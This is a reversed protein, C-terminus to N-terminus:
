ITLGVLQCRQTIHFDTLDPAHAKILSFLESRDIGFMERTPTPIVPSVQSRENIVSATLSEVLYSPWNDFMLSFLITLQNRDALNINIDNRTITIDHWQRPEGTAVQTIPIFSNLASISAGVVAIGDPVQANWPLESMPATQKNRLTPTTTNYTAAGVIMVKRDATGLAVVGEERAGLAGNLDIIPSLADGIDSDLIQYLSSTLRTDTDGGLAYIFQDAIYYYDKGKIHIHLKTNVIEIKEVEELRKLDNDECLKIIEANRSGPLVAGSFETGGPRAFWNMRPSRQSALDAVWAATASGGYIARDINATYEDPDSLFDIGEIVQTYGLGSPSTGSVPPPKRQAGIGTAIVIRDVILAHHHDFWAVYKGPQSRSKSIRQVKRSPNYGYRKGAVIRSVGQQFVGSSLFNDLSMEGNPAQFTPVPTGPLQLLHAPQGMPHEALKAWLGDEGVVVTEHDDDSTQLFAAASVGAGIILRIPM